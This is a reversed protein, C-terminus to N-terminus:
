PKGKGVPNGPNRSKFVSNWGRDRQRPEARLAQALMMEFSLQITPCLSKGDSRVIAYLAQLQIVPRNECCFRAIAQM